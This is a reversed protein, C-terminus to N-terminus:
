KDFLKKLNEESIKKMNLKVKSDNLLNNLEIQDYFIGNKNKGIITIDAKGKIPIDYFFLGDNVMSYYTFSNLERYTIYINFGSFDKKDEYLEFNIKSTSSTIRHINIWESNVNKLVFFNSEKILKNRVLRRKELLKKYEKEKQIYHNLSDLPITILVTIGGGVYKEFTTYDQDTIKWKINGLSDTESLFIDNEKLKGKPPYIILKKGKKLQLEKGNSTFKIKLVGSSELLKNDTTVTQINRYLIEKFDYLEILELQVKENEKIDFLERSFNIKTDHKGKIEKFSITDLDFLQSKETQFEAFHNKPIFPIEIKPKCNFLFLSCLLILFYYHLKM